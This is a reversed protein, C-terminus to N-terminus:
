TTDGQPLENLRDYHCGCHLFSFFVAHPVMRQILSPSIHSVSARIWFVRNKMIITAPANGNTFFPIRTKSRKDFVNPVGWKWLGLKISNIIIARISWFISFPNRWCLLHKVGSTVYQVGNVSNGFRPKHPASFVINIDAGDPIAHSVSPFDFLGQGSLRKGYPTMFTSNVTMSNGHRQKAPLMQNAARNLIMYNQFPLLRKGARADRYNLEDGAIGGIFRVM